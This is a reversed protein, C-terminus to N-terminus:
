KQTFLEGSFEPSAEVKGDAFLRVGTFDFEGALIEPATFFLATALGDATLADEATAWTAIVDAVSIGTNANVIHHLGDGWARRNIASACLAAEHLSAIGIVEEPRFPHELGVRIASPGAHRIDGSGDVIFHPHGAEHLLRSVLDVLYGKGAAGFDIVVPRFTTIIQGSRVIDKEWRPKCRSNQGELQQAAPTLSYTKDYGMLELHRGVLPDVAGDTVKYLKDYLEFLPVAQEPFSFIGGRVSTAVRSVLSDERFRSYVSDFEQVLSSIQQRVRENIGSQTAIEWRTGIAEFVFSEM